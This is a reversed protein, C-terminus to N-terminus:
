ASIRKLARDLLELLGLVILLALGAAAAVIYMGFWRMPGAMDMVALGVLVVYAGAGVLFGCGIVGLLIAITFRVIMIAPM